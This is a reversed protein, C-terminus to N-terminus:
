GVSLTNGFVPSYYHYYYYLVSNFAFQVLSVAPTCTFVQWRIEHVGFESSM